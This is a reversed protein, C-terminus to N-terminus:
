DGPFAKHRVQKNPPGQQAPQSLPHKLTVSSQQEQVPQPLAAISPRPPHATTTPTSGPLKPIQGSGIRPPEDGRYFGSPMGKGTIPPAKKPLSPQSAPAKSTPDHQRLAEPVNPLVRMSSIGKPPPGQPVAPHAKLGVADVHTSWDAMSRAYERNAREAEERAERNWYHDNTGQAAKLLVQEHEEPTWQGNMVFRTAYREPKQHPAYERTPLQLDVPWERVAPDVHRPSTEPETPTDDVIPVAPPEQIVPPQAKTVPPPVQDGAQVAQFAAETAAEKVEALEAM